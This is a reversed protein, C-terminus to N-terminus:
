CFCLLWYDELWWHEPVFCNLKLSFELRFLGFKDMKQPFEKFFFRLSCWYKKVYGSSKQCGCSHWDWSGCSKRPAFFAGESHKLSGHDLPNVEPLHRVFAHGKPRYSWLHDSRHPIYLGLSFKVSLFAKKDVSEFKSHPAWNRSRKPKGHFSLNSKLSAKKPRTHWVHKRSKCPWSVDATCCFLWGQKGWLSHKSNRVVEFCGYWFKWVSLQQAGNTGISFDPTEWHRRARCRAFVAYVSSFCLNKLAEKTRGFFFFGFVCMNQPM